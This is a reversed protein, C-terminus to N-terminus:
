GQFSSFFFLFLFFFFFFPPSYFFFIIFYYYFYIIFIIIFNFLFFLVKIPLGVLAQVFQAFAVGDSLDTLFDHIPDHGVSSLVHNIWGVVVRRQQFDRKTENALQGFHKKQKSSKKKEKKEPIKQKTQPKHTHTKKSKSQNKKKKKKPFLSSLLSLSFSFSFLIKKRQFLSLSVQSPPADFEGSQFVTPDGSSLPPQPSPTRMTSRSPSKPDSVTSRRKSAASLHTHLKM